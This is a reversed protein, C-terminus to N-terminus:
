PEAGQGSLIARVAEATKELRTRVDDNALGLTHNRKLAGDLEAALRARDDQMVALEERLNALTRDTDGRREMAAELHDLATQFRKLAAETRQPPKM